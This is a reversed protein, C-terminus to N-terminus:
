RERDARWNQNADGTCQWIQSRALLVAPGDATWHGAVYGPM